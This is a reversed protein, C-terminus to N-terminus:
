WGEPEKWESLVVGWSSYDYFISEKASKNTDGMMYNIMSKTVDYSAAFRNSIFFPNDEYAQARSIGNYTVGNVIIQKIKEPLKDKLRIIPLRNYRKIYDVCDWYKSYENGSLNTGNIRSDSCTQGFADYGYCVTGSSNACLTEWTIGARHCYTDQLLHLYVGLVMYGRQVATDMSIGIGKSAYYSKLNNYMVKMDNVIRRKLSLGIQVGYYSDSATYNASNLDLQSNLMLRRRSLEYLFALQTWKIESLSFKTKAHYPSTKNGASLSEIDDVRFITDAVIWRNHVQLTYNGNTGRSFYSTPMNDIITSHGTGETREIKQWERKSWSGNVFSDNESCKIIEKNCKNDVRDSYEDFDIYIGEKMAKEANQYNVLGYEYCKETDNPLSVASCFLVKRLEQNTLKKYKGKLLAAVGTVHASAISTGDVIEYSGLYGLTQAAEGPAVLDVPELTKMSDAAELKQNVSGVSIVEPFKAPYQINGENGAAAVMLIGHNYAQKIKDELIESYCDTGFSMNIIDIDNQICWDLAKIILSVSATNKKNLVKVSYLEAQSAIGRIGSGNLRAGIVGAVETGHGNNDVPKYGNVKDSFDVWGKTNLDDHVDIGSDIVAIKVGKANKGNDYPDGAVCEINWPLVEHKRSKMGKSPIFKGPDDSYEAQPKEKLAEADVKIETGQAVESGTVQYDEEVQCDYKTEIEEAEEKTLTAVVSNESELYQEDAKKHNVFVDDTKHLRRKVEKLNAKTRCKVIYERARETQLSGTEEKKVLIKAQAAEGVLCFLMAFLLITSLIRKRM